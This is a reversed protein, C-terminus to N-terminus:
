LSECSHGTLKAHFSILGPRVTCYPSLCTDSLNHYQLIGSYAVEFYAEKAYSNNQASPLQSDASASFFEEGGGEVVM